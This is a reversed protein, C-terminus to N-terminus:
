GERNDGDPDCSSCYMDYANRTKNNCTDGKGMCFYTNGDDYNYDKGDAYDKMWDQVDDQYDDDDSSGKNYSGGSSSKYTVEASEAEEAENDGFNTSSTSCSALMFISVILAVISLFSILVKRM